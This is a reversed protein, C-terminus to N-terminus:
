RYSLLLSLLAGHHPSVQRDPKDTGLSKSADM